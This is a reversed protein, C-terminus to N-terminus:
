RGRTMLWLLVDGRHFRLSRKVRRRPDHQGVDVCPMGNTVHREITSRSVGLYQGLTRFTDLSAPADSQRPVAAPASV